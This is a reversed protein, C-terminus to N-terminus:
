FKKADITLGDNRNGLRRHVEPDISYNIVHVSGDCFAMQCGNAHASGFDFRVVLGPTDQSPPIYDIPPSRSSATWRTVDENEGALAFENDGGDLGNAYYDPCLYKEGILYTNSAGDTVDAMKVTSCGCFIGSSEGAIQVLYTRADATMQGPPNEANAISTPGSGWYSVNDPSADSDTYWDGGNGAYDCRGVLSTVGPGGNRVTDGTLPYVTAPRRTPCYFMSLSVSLRQMQAICKPSSPQDAPGALGAGMDHLDRQEIFPLINYIWGGPQRRDTGRDADGTWGCGWGGAPLRRLANEHQLCGLALQKLNNKCQAQRAAERAAQVAPLLLAILIGIITIVVLLEVLTFGRAAPVISRSM